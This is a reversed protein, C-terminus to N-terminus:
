VDGRSVTTTVAPPVAVTFKRIDAASLVDVPVPSEIVTRAATRSGVVAVAELTSAARSLRFDATVTGGATVVVTDRPSAFGILRARLEYTGPRLQLRYTGDGRVLAGNPSGNPSGNPAESPVVSAGVAAQGDEGLTVRGSVTGLAPAQAQGVSAGVVTALMVGIRVAGKLGRSQEM